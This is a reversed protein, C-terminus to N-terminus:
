LDVPTLDSGSTLDDPVGGEGFNHALDPLIVQMDVDPVCITGNCIEGIYCDSNAKCSTGPYDDHAAPCGVLTTTAALLGSVLAAFILRRM